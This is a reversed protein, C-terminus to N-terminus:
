RLEEPSISRITGIDDNRVLPKFFCNYQGGKFVNKHLVCSFPVMSGAIIQVDEETNHFGVSSVKVTYTGAPIKVIKFSGDKNKVYTGRKTGVVRVTAGIVPKGNEDMVKGKLVGFDQKTTTDPRTTQNTDNKTSGTTTSDSTNEPLDYIPFPGYVESQCSHETPGVYYERRGTNYLRDWEGSKVGQISSNEIVVMETSYDQYTGFVSHRIGPYFYVITVSDVAIRVETECSSYPSIFPSSIITHFGPSLSDLFFLTDPKVIDRPYYVKNDVKFDNRLIEKGDEDVVLCTLQGYIGGICDAISSIFIIAILLLKLM